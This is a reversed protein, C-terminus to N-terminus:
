NMPLLEPLVDDPGEGTMPDDLERLGDVEAPRSVQVPGARGEVAVGVQRQADAVPLTEGGGALLELGPDHEAGVQREAEVVKWRRARWGHVVDDPLRAGVM